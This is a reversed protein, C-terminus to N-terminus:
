HTSALFLLGAPDMERNPLNLAVEIFWGSLPAMAISLHLPIAVPAELAYYPLLLFLLLLLLSSVAPVRLLHAAAIPSLPSFLCRRTCTAIHSRRTHAM